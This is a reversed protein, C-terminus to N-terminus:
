EEEDELGRMLDRIEETQNRLEQIYEHLPVEDKDLQKEARIVKLKQLAQTLTNFYGHTIYLAVGNKDTNGTLEKITYCLPDKDIYIDKDIIIKM